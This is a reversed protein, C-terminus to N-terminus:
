VEMGGGMPKTMGSSVGDRSARNFTACLEFTKDGIVRYEYPEGTQPDSPAVFGRLPDNLIEITEPLSTKAQWYNVVQWQINQLDGVKQEDFRYLRATQPSGILFFGSIVAIAVLISAVWGLRISLKVNAEWKGRLDYFYYGFVAGAVVLVAFVKLIFRATIDGGLFTNLLVILDVVISVGAVFLTIFILWKRVGFERKEPNKRIDQNLFRTLALYIPFIIVLSAIAFRIAGSYPDYYRVLEDPFLVNIYQFLLALISGVSVYLAAMAALWLFFDKPNFKAKNEM